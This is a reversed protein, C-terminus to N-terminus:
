KVIKQSMTLTKGIQDQNEIEEKIKPSPLEIDKAHHVFYLNLVYIHIQLIDVRHFLVLSTRRQNWLMLKITTTCSDHSM